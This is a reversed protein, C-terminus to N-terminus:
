PPAPQFKEKFIPNGLCKEYVHLWCSAETQLKEYESGYKQRSRWINGSSACEMSAYDECFKKFEPSATKHAQSACGSVVCAFLIAGALASLYKGCKNFEIMRDGKVLMCVLFRISKLAFGGPGKSFFFHL